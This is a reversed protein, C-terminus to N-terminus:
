TDPSFRIVDKGSAHCDDIDTRDGHNITVPKITRTTGEDYGAWGVTSVRVAEPVFIITYAIVNVQADNNVRDDWRASQSFPAITWHCLDVDGQVVWTGPYGHDLESVRGVRLRLVVVRVM